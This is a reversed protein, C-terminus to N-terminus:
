RPWALMGLALLLWMLGCARLYLALGRQLDGAEPRLGFGLWPRNLVIGDYAAPGGLRLGLAGAM